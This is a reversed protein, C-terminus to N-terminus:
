VHVCSIGSVATGSKNQDFVKGNSLKGVYRMSVTDGAKAQRGTGVKHDSIKVGEIERTEGKDKKKEADKEAKKEKEAEKQKKDKKVEGNAKPQQETGAPVAKGDEAKLKKNLKKEAKSPKEEEAASVDADRARKKSAEKKGVEVKATEAHIEEFRSRLLDSVTYTITHQLSNTGPMKRWTKTKTMRM